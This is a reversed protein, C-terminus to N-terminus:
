NQKYGFESLMQRKIERNLGNVNLTIILTPRRPPETTLEGDASCSNYTVRTPIRPCSSGRSFSIAVWELIRDKSLGHISFGPLSTQPNL